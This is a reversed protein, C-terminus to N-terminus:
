TVFISGYVFRGGLYLKKPFKFVPPPFTPTESSQVMKITIKPTDEISKAHLRKPDLLNIQISFKEWGRNVIFIV